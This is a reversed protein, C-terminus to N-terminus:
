QLANALLLPMVSLLMPFTRSVLWAQKLGRALITLKGPLLSESNPEGTTVFCLTPVNALLGLPTEGGGPQPAPYTRTQPGLVLGM